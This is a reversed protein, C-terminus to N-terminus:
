HYNTEMVSVFYHPTVHGTFYKNVRWIYGEYCAGAHIDAIELVCERRARTHEGQTSQLVM